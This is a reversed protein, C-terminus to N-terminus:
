GKLLRCYWHSQSVPYRVKGTSNLRLIPVECALLHCQESKLSLLATHWRWTQFQHAIQFSLPDLILRALYSSLSLSFLYRRNERSSHSVLAWICSNKERKDQELLLRAPRDGLVATSLSDSSSNISSFSTLWMVITSDTTVSIPM